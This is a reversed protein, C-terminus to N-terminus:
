SMGRLRDLVVVFAFTALFFGLILALYVWAM